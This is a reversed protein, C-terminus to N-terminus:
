SDILARATQVGQAMSSDMSGYEWRGYRGAVVIGRRRLLRFIGPLVRARARTYDVYAPSLVVRHEVAIDQARRIVGAAVLDRRARRALVDLDAAGRFGIEVYLSHHGPPTLHPAFNSYYGVRLFSSRQEPYYVWHARTAPPGQVGLNLVLMSSATLARLWAGLAPPAPDLLRLLAPLPITSLLPPDYDLTEGSALTVRRRRTHVRRVEAGTRLGDLGRGLRRPLVEIASRRPYLFSANYGYRERNEGRAGARVEDPRPVPVSWETWEATIARLGRAFVKENYPFFFLRGMEEGFAARVFPVFGVPTGRRPRAQAREFGALAQRAAARPLAGLHAQFPYPVRRGLLFIEARREHAAFTRPALRALLETTEPRSTHLLHGSCDFSFDGARFSRAYGGPRSARELVQYALGAEALTRAAALGTVGGGLILIM